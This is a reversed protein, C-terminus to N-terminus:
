PRRKLQEIIEQFDIGKEVCLISLRFLLDASEILFVKKYNSVQLKKVSV